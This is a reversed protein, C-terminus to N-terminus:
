WLLEKGFKEGRTGSTNASHKPYYQAGSNTFKLLDFVSISHYDIWRVLFIKSEVSENFRREMPIKRLYNCNM